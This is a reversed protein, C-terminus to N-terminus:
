TVSAGALSAFVLFSVEIVHIFIPRRQPLWSHPFRPERATFDRGAM